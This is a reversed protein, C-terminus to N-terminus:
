RRLAARTYPTETEYLGDGNLDERVIIARRDPDIVLERKGQGDQTDQVWPSQDKTLEDWLDGRHPGGPAAM